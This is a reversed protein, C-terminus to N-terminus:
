QISRQESLQVPAPEELWDNLDLIDQPSLLGAQKKLRLQNLVFDYRTNAYDRLAQYLLREAQLVDVVNRTGVDYGAKTADLASQSSVIAQKRAKVRQADTVVALHLSRTNQITNRQVGTHNEAAQNYQEYAQRRQASIAGGSYLPLELRLFVTDGQNKEDFPDESLNWHDEITGDSEESTYRIGGRLTPAHASKRANAAQMAAQAAYWAAKLDYNNNLSFTVWEDRNEPVPMGVPFDERLTWLNQHSQGTLVTLGEYAIGLAGEDALRAVVASDYAAQAEHVDTIAILGVEFRQRTQELQRAFALEQARTSALNDKARLVDFYATATRVILDQQASALAAEAQRSIEKGQKFSFWAPLDFIAQSLTVTYADRETDLTRNSASQVPTGGIVFSNRSNTDINADSYEAEAMVSPLLGARGIALAERNARYSAEAVKLQPDNEVALEYIDNLTDAQLPLALFLLLSAALRHLTSM